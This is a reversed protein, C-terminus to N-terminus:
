LVGAAVAFCVIALWWAPTYAGALQRIHGTLPFALAGLGMTLPLAAGQIDGLHARGFFRAWLVNQAVHGSQFGLGYGINAVLMWVVSDVVIAASACVVLCALGFLMVLIAPVRDMLRG